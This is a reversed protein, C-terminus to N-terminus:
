ERLESHFFRDGYVFGPVTYQLSTPFDYLVCYCYVIHHKNSLVLLHLSSSRM